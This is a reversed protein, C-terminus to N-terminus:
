KRRIRTQKIKQTRCKTVKTQAKKYEEKYANIHAPVNNDTEPITVLGYKVGTIINDEIIKIVKVM